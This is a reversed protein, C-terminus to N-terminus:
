RNGTEAEHRVQMQLRQGRTTTRKHKAKKATSKNAKTEQNERTKYDM